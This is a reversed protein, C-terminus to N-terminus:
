LSQSEGCRQTGFRGAAKSRSAAQEANGVALARSARTVVGPMTNGGNHPSVIRMNLVSHQCLPHPPRASAPRTGTPDTALANECPCDMAM